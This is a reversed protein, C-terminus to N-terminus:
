VGGELKMAAFCHLNADRLMLDAEAAYVRSMALHRRADHDSAKAAAAHESALGLQRIALEMCQTQQQREAYGPRVINIADTLTM